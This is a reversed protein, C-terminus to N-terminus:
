DGQLINKVQDSVPVEGTCTLKASRNALYEDLAVHLDASCPSDVLATNHLRRSPCVASADGSERLVTLLSSLCPPSSEGNEIAVRMDQESGAARIRDQKDEMNATADINSRLQAVSQPDLYRYNAMLGASSRLGAASDNGLWNIRHLEAGNRLHFRAVNDLPLPQMSIEQHGGSAEVHGRSKRQQKVHVLYYGGIWTVLGQLTATLAADQTWQPTDRNLLKSLCQLGIFPSVTMDSDEDLINTLVNVYSKPM